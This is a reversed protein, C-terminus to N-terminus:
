KRLEVVGMLDETFFTDEEEPLLEHANGKDRYRRFHASERPVVTHDDSAALLLGANIAM